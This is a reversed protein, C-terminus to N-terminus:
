EVASFAYLRDDYCVGDAIAGCESDKICRKHDSFAEQLGVDDWSLYLEEQTNCARECQRESVRPTDVTECALLKECTQECSPDCGALGSALLVTLGMLRITM